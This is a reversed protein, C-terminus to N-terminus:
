EGNIPKHGKGTVECDNSTLQSTSTTTRKSPDSIVRNYGESGARVIDMYAKGYLWDCIDDLIPFRM